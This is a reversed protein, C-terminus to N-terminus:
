QEDKSKEFGREMGATMAVVEYCHETRCEHSHGTPLCDYGKNTSSMRKRNRAGPQYLQMAPRD